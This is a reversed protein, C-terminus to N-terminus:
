FPMLSSFVLFCIFFKSGQIYVISAVLVAPQLNIFVMIFHIQDEDKHVYYEMVILNRITIYM